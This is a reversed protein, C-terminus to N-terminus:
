EIEKTLNDWMDEKNKIIIKVEEIEKLVSQYKDKDLYIDEEYLKNNLNSLKNELNLIEKELKNIEKSINTYEKIVKKKTNISPEIITEKKNNKEIYESYGYNYFTTKNDEFVLLKNCVKNILYRDHSVIIISGKYNLLM